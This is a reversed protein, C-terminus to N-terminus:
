YNINIGLCPGVRPGPLRKISIEIYISVRISHSQPSCLASTTTSPLLCKRGPTMPNSKLASHAFYKFLPPAFCNSHYFTPTCGQLCSTYELILNYWFGMEPFGPIVNSWLRCSIYHTSFFILIFGLKQKKFFSFMSFCWPQTIYLYLRACSRCCWDDEAKLCQFRSMRLKKETHM